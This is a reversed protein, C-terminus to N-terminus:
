AGWSPSSSKKERETTNPIIILRYLCYCRLNSSIQYKIIVIKFSANPSILDASGPLHHHYTQALLLVHIRKWYHHCKTILNEWELTLIINGIWQTVKQPPSTNHLDTFLPHSDFGWGENQYCRHDVPLISDQVTLNWIQCNSIM